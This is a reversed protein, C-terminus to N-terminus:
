GQQEALQPVDKALRKPRGRTSLLCIESGARTWYGLGIAAKGAATTTLNPAAPPQIHTKSLIAAVCRSEVGGLPTFFPHDDHM